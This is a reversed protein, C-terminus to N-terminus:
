KNFKVVIDKHEDLWYRSIQNDIFSKIMFNRYIAIERPRLASNIEVNDALLSMSLCVYVGCDVGNQQQPSRVIKFTWGEDNNTAMRIQYIEALLSAICEFTQIYKNADIGRSSDILYIERMRIDVVFLHWHINGINIPLCLYQLEMINFKNNIENVMSEFSLDIDDFNHNTLDIYTRLLHATQTTNLFGTISYTSQINLKHHERKELLLMHADIIDSTLYRSTDQLNIATVPFLRTISKKELSIANIPFANNINKRRRSSVIGDNRYNRVGVLALNEDIQTNTLNTFQLWINSGNVSNMGKKVM